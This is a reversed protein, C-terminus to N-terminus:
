HTLFPDARVDKPGGAAAATGFLGGFGSEAQAQANAGYGSATNMANAGMANAQQGYQQGVAGYQQGMARAKEAQMKYAEAGGFAGGFQPLHDKSLLTAAYGAEVPPVQKPLLGFSRLWGGFVDTAEPHEQEYNSYLFWTMVMGCFCSFPINFKIVITSIKVAFGIFASVMGVVFGISSLVGWWCIYTINMDEKWAMFAILVMVIMVIGSLFNMFEVLAMIGMLAQYIGIAIFVMQRSKAYPTPPGIQVPFVQMQRVQASM